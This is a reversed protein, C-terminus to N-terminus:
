RKEHNHSNTSFNDIFFWKKKKKKQNKYESDQHIAYFVKPSNFDILNCMFVFQKLLAELFM